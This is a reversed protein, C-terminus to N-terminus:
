CLHYYPVIILIAEIPASRPPTITDIIAKTETAEGGIAPPAGLKHTKTQSGGTAARSSKNVHMNIEHIKVGTASGKVSKVFDPHMECLYVRKLSLIHELGKASVGTLNDCKTFKLEELNKMAGTGFTCEILNEMSVISLKKLKRYSGQTCSLKSYTSANCISLLLLDWLGQLHHLVDVDLKSDWLYLHTLSRMMSIRDASLKGMDGGLKLKRINEGIKLSGIDFRSRDPTAEKNKHPKGDSINEKKDVPEVGLSTNKKEKGLDEDYATIALSHLFGMNSVASCINKSSATSVKISLKRLFSIHSLEQELNGGDVTGSLTWLNVLSRLGESILVSQNRFSKALHLHRMETFASVDDLSTMYNDRIDLCLLKKLRNFSAPLDELQTNRLGLYRL